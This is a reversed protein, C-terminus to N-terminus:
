RAGDNAAAAKKIWYISGGVVAVESFAVINANADMAAKVKKAIQSPTDGVVVAVNFVIPSGTLGTATATVSANGAGTVTGVITMVEVQRIPLDQGNLKFTGDGVGLYHGRAFKVTNGRIQTARKQGLTYM